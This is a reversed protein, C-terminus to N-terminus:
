AFSAHRASISAATSGPDSARASSSLMTPMPAAIASSNASKKPSVAVDFRQIFQGRRQARLRRVTLDGALRQHEGAPCPCRGRRSRQACRSAGVVARSGPARSWLTAIIGHPAQRTRRGRSTMGVKRSCVERSSRQADSCASRSESRGAGKPEQRPWCDSWSASTNLIYRYAGHIM